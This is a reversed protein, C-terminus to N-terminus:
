RAHKIVSATNLFKIQYAQDSDKGQKLTYFAEKTEHVKQPVYKKDEINFCILNIVRLLDVGNLAQEIAQYERHAKIKAHM